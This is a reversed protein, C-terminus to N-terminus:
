RGYESSNIIDGNGNHGLEVIYNSGPPLRSNVSAQWSAYPALDSPTIRYTAGSPSYLATTLHVDDIQTGLYVKRAGVFLGRTLWHIYAHQIFNSALSWDTAWNIFFVMQQRGAFNNIVAATSKSAYNGGAAFQAIQWTTKSDTIKAPYHWLSQTSVTAGTKLKATPFGTANTFSFLQEVGDSCCGESGDSAAVAQTGSTDDPYADLRVMRVGFALQYAYLTNYQATTIASQYNGNYDYSVDSLILIGGYNGATTSSNLTPLPAGASPIQLLQYPIGYADFGSTASTPAEVDSTPALILITSNVTLASASSVCLSILATSLALGRGLKKVFSM